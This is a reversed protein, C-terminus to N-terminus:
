KGGAADVLRAVLDQDTVTIEHSGIMIQVTGSSPDEIHAVLPTTSTIAATRASASGSSLAVAGATGVVGAAAVGLIKRRSTENVTTDNGRTSNDTRTLRIM